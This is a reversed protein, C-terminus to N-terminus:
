ILQSRSFNPVYDGAYPGDAFSARTVGDEVGFVTRTLRQWSIPRHAAEDEGSEVGGVGRLVFRQAVCQFLQLEVVSRQVVLGLRRSRESESEASPEETEKM